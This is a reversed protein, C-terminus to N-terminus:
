AGAGRELPSHQDRYLLRPVKVAASNDRASLLLGAMAAAGAAFLLAALTKTAGLLNLGSNWADYAMWTAGLLFLVLGALALSGRRGTAGASAGRAQLPPRSLGKVTGFSGLDLKRRRKADRLDALFEVAFGDSPVLVDFEFLLRNRAPNLACRANVGDRTSWTPAHDLIDLDPRGFGFPDDKSLDSGTITVDGCNWVYLTYRVPYVLERDAYRVCLDEITKRDSQSFPSARHAYCILKKPQGSKALPLLWSLAHSLPDAFMPDLM